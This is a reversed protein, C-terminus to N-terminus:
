WYKEISDGSPPPNDGGDDGITISPKTTGDLWEPTNKIFEGAVVEFPKDDTISDSILKYANDLKDAKIKVVKGDELKFNQLKSLHNTRLLEADKQKLTGTIEEMQKQLSIITENEKEKDTKSSDILTKISEESELSYKELLGKVTNEAVEKGYAVKMGNYQRNWEEELGSLDLKSLDIESGELAKIFELMKNSKM